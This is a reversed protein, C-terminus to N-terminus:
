LVSTEEKVVVQLVVQLQHIAVMSVPMVAVTVALVVLDQHVSQVKAVVVAVAVAVVPLLFVNLKLLDTLVFILQAVAVVLMPLVATQVVTSDEQLHLALEVLWCM